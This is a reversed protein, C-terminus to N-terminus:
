HRSLEKFSEASDGLVFANGMAAERLRDELKRAERAIVPPPFSELLKVVYDLEQPNSYRPLQLAKKTRWSDPDWEILIGPSPPKVFDQVAEVRLYLNRKRFRGPNSYGKM